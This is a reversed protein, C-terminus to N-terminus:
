KYKRTYKGDHKSNNSPLALSKRNGHNEYSGIEPNKTYKSKPIENLM